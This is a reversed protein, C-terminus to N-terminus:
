YNSVPLVGKSFINILFHDSSVLTHNKSIIKTFPM